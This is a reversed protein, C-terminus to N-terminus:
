HLDDPTIALPYEPLALGLTPIAQLRRWARTIRQEEAQVFEVDLARKNFFSSCEVSPFDSDTIYQARAPNCRVHCEPLIHLRELPIESLIFALYLDSDTMQEVDGGCVRCRYGEDCRAM